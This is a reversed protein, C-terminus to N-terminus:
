LFNSADEEVESYDITNAEDLLEKFYIWALLQLNETKFSAKQTFGSEIEQDAIKGFNFVNTVQFLPAHVLFCNQPNSFEDSDFVNINIHLWQMM